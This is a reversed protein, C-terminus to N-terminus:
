SRTLRGAEERGRSMKYVRLPVSLETSLTDGRM